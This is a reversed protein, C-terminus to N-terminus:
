ASIIFCWGSHWGSCSSVLCRESDLIWEMHWLWLCQQTKTYLSGSFCFTELSFKCCGLTSISALIGVVLNYISIETRSYIPAPCPAACYRLEPDYVLPEPCSFREPINEDSSNECELRATFSETKVVLYERPFFPQGSADDIQDCDPLPISDVSSCQQVMKHCVSHCPPRPLPIEKPWPVVFRDKYTVLRVFVCLFFLTQPFRTTTTPISMAVVARCLCVSGCRRSLRKSTGEVRWNETKGFAGSILSNRKLVSCIDFCWFSRLLSDELSPLVLRLPRFCFWLSCWLTSVLRSLFLDLHILLRFAAVVKGDPKKKKKNNNNNTTPQHQHKRKSRGNLISRLHPQSFSQLFLSFLVFWSLLFSVLYFVALSDFPYVFPFLLRSPSILSKVRCNVVSTQFIPSHSFCCGAVDDGFFIRESLSALTNIILASNPVWNSVNEYRKLHCCIPNM